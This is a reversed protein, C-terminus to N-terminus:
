AKQPTTTAIPKTFEQAPKFQGNMYKEIRNFRILGDAFNGRYIELQADISDFEARYRGVESYEQLARYDKCIQNPMQMKRDTNGPRPNISRWREEHTKGLYINRNSALAEILHLASYFVATVKWEEFQNPFAECLSDFFKKIDAARGLHEKM